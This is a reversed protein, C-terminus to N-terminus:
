VTMEKKGKALLWREICKVYDEDTPPYVKRCWASRCSEPADYRCLGAAQMVVAAVHVACSEVTKIKRAM